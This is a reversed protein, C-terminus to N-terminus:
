RVDHRESAQNNSIHGRRLRQLFAQAELTSVGFRHLTFRTMELALELEGVVAETVGKEILFEREDATHTRAVIDLEPNLERAYDVIVRTSLADPVAVVLIRAQPLRLHDLLTPLEADGLLV